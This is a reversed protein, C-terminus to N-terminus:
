TMRSQSFPIPGPMAHTSHKARRPKTTNSQDRDGVNKPPCAMRRETATSSSSDSSDNMQINTDNEMRLILTKATGKTERRATLSARHGSGNASVALLPKQGDPSHAVQLTPSGHHTSGALLLLVSLGTILILSPFSFFCFLPIFLSFPFSCAPPPPCNPM